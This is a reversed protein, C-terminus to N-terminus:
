DQAAEWRLLPLLVAGLVYLIALVAMLRKSVDPGPASIEILALVTLVTAALAAGIATWRIPPSDAPRASGLLLSVNGACFAVLGTEAATRWGGNLPEKAWIAAIAEGLALLSLLVTLYGLPYYALESGRRGLSIGAAGTLSFFAFAIATALAKSVNARDSTPASTGLIVAIAVLAAVCLVAILIRALERPAVSGDTM